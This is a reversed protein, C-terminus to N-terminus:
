IIVGSFSLHGGLMSLGAILTLTGNQYFFKGYVDQNFIMLSMLAHILVMLFGTMGIARRANLYGDPLKIGLNSLPGFSFNFTLLIFASLAIGKNVTFFPLDKWPVPGVIHYRLIAYGISLLCTIAIISGASNKLHPSEDM